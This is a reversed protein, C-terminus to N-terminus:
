TARLALAACGLGLCATMPVGFRREALSTSALNALLSVGFLSALAWLLGDATVPGPRTVVGEAQLVAIAGLVPVLLVAASAVRLRSPLPGSHRGGWAMHGLPAGLALAAQFAGLVAFLGLVAGGLVTM